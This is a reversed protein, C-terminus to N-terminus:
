STESHEGDTGVGELLEAARQEADARPLQYINELYSVVQDRLGPTDGRAVVERLDTRYSEYETHGESINRKAMRMRELCERVEWIDAEDQSALLIGLPVDFADVLGIAERLRVAREGREIRTVATSHLSIGATAHLQQALYEQSWGRKEREERVRRGFAAEPDRQNTQMSRLM